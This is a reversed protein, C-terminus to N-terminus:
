RRRRVGLMAAWGGLVAIAGPAPVYRGLIEMSTTGGNGPMPLQVWNNSGYFTGAIDRGVTPSGNVFNIDRVSFYPEGSATMDRPQMSIWYTGATLFPTVMHLDATIRVGAMGYVTDTFPTMTVDNPTVLSNYLLMAPMNSADTWISLEVGDNPFRQNFMLYDLTVSDIYASNALTFDDASQANYIAGYQAFGGIFDADRRNYSQNNVISLTSHLVVQAQACAAGACCLAIALRPANTM